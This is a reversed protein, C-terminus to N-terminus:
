YDIIFTNENNKIQNTVLNRDAENLNRFIDNQVRSGSLYGWHSGAECKLTDPLDNEVFIRDIVSVINKKKVAKPIGQHDEFERRAIGFDPVPYQNNSFSEARERKHCVTKRNSLIYVAM